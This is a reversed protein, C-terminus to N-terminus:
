VRRRFALLVLLGTGLLQISQPEPVASVTELSINDVGFQFQALNDTEAFRLRLTQGVNAAFLSTLNFNFSTYGSVLPAGVQTQFLNLAIDAAAVSFPATGGRMIDVRAQQNLQTTSFDLGAAAAIAFRDARNGIFLSFSLLAGEAPVVFDQYLVHSGPGFADTMAATLGQPPGPVPDGNVPSTTGSQLVFTGESGLQDVRTWSTFGSEFGGNLILATANAATALSLCVISVGILQVTIRTLKSMSSDEKPHEAPRQYGALNFCGDESCHVTLKAVRNLSKLPQEVYM